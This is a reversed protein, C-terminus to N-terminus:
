LTWWDVASGHVKGHIIEPALYEHTGMFSMSRADTPEANFEVVTPGGALGSDSKSPKRSRRPLIRPIFATSCSSSPQRGDLLRGHGGHLRGRRGGENGRSPSWATREGVVIVHNNHGAVEGHGVPSLSRSLSLTAEYPDVHTTLVRVPFILRVSPLVEPSSLCM